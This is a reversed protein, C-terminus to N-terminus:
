YKRWAPKIGRRADGESAAGPRGRLIMPKSIMQNPNQMVLGIIQAREKITKDKIDEGKYRIVGQDVKEFACLLKSLTSKGAGNKGVLSIM